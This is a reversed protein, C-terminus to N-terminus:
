VVIVLVLVDVLVLVLVLVELLVLVVVDVDVDVVLVVAFQLPSTSGSGHLSRETTMHKDNCITDTDHGTIHLEHTRAVLEGAGVVVVDVEVDVEVKSPGVSHLPTSSPNFHAVGITDSKHAM